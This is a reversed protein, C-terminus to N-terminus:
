PGSSAAAPPEVLSKVSPELKKIMYCLHIIFVAVNSSFNRFLMRLTLGDTKDIESDLVVDNPTADTYIVPDNTCTKNIKKLFNFTDWEDTKPTMIYSSIIAATVQAWQKSVSDYTIRPPTIAHPIDVAPCSTPSGLVTEIQAPTNKFIVLTDVLKRWFNVPAPTSPMTATPAKGDLIGKFTSMVTTMYFGDRLERATKIYSLGDAYSKLNDSFLKKINDSTIEPKNLPSQKDYKMQIAITALAEIFINKARSPYAILTALSDSAGISLAELKTTSLGVKKSSDKFSVLREVDNVYQIYTKRDTDENISALKEFLNSNDDTIGLKRRILNIAIDMLDDQRMVANVYQTVAKKGGAADTPDTRTERLLTDYMGAWSPDAALATEWERRRAEDPIPVWNAGGRQKMTRRGSREKKVRQKLQM